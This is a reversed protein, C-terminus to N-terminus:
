PVRVLALLMFSVIAFGALSILAMVAAVRVVSAPGPLFSGDDQAAGDDEDTLPPLVPRWSGDRALRGDWGASLPLRRAM